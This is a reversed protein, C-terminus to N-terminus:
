INITKNALFNVRNIHAYQDYVKARTFYKGAILIDGSAEAIIGAHYLILPDYEGLRLAESIYSKAEGFQGNKYHAWAYVDAAFISPHTNYASQALKLAEKIDGHDALFLAYELNVNTKGANLYALDALAYHAQSKDVEGIAQYFNGLYIAYSAVPLATFARLYYLEATEMEGQIYAIRALGELAPAYEPYLELAQWFNQEAAKQDNIIHLKGSETYAWAMNELHASGSSIAATLALLAGETDGHLERQYAVRSFSSFNPKLDIMQQLSQEAKEYMGLEIESDSRIGYFLAQSQDLSIAKNIYELGGKFDHLGNAIEARKAFIQATNPHYKELRDLVKEIKVYVSTDGTERIIQLYSSTLTIGLNLNKSNNEYNDELAALAGNTSNEWEQVLSDNVVNKTEFWVFLSSILFAFVALSAYLFTNSNKM